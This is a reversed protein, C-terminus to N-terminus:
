KTRSLYLLTVIYVCEAYIEIADDPLLKPIKASIGFNEASRLGPLGTIGIVSEFIWYSFNELVSCPKLFLLRIEPSIKESKM